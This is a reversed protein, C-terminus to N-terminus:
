AEWEMNGCVGLSQGTIHRGGPGALFMAAEAVESPDIMTRMSVYSLFQAKAEQLALGNEAAFKQLLGRGRENDIVGPL